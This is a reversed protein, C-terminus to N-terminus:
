SRRRPALGSTTVFRTPVRRRKKAWDALATEDGQEFAVKLAAIWSRPDNPQGALCAHAHEMAKASRGIAQEARALSRLADYDRPDAAVFPELFEVVKEPMIREGELRMRMILITPHDEPSSVRYYKWLLELAEEWREEFIYLNLLHNASRDFLDLSPPHDPDPSVCREWVESALRACKLNNWAIAESELALM